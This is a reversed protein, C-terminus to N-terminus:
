FCILNQSHRSGSLEYREDELTRIEKFFFRVILNCLVIIEGATKYLLSVWDRARLSSYLILIFLNIHHAPCTAHMPSIVYAACCLPHYPYIKFFYSTHFCVPTVHNLPPSYAGCLIPLMKLLQTVILTELLVFSSLWASQNTVRSAM